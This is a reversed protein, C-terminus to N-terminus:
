VRQHINFNTNQRFINYIKKLVMIYAAGKNIHILYKADVHNEQPTEGEYNKYYINYQGNTTCPPNTEAIPFLLSYYIKSDNVVSNPLRSRLELIQARTKTRSLFM